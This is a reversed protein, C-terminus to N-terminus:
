VESCTTARRRAWAAVMGVGFLMLSGPEPLPTGDLAFAHETGNNVWNDLTGQFSQNGNGPLPTAQVWYIDDREFDASAHIGIWYQTGAAAAFPDVDFDFAFANNGCCWALGSNSVSLNLANGGALLAGPAGGANAYFSYGLSGDWNGIGGFGALYVTAHRITAGSAVSFNEAQVWQTAEHGGGFLMPAGNNYVVDAQAGASALALAFLAARKMRALMDFGKQRLYQERHCLLLIQVVILTAKLIL